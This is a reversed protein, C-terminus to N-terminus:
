KSGSQRNDRIQAILRDLKAKKALDSPKRPGKKRHELNPTEM